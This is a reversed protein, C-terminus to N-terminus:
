YTNLSGPVIACEDITLSPDGAGRMGAGGHGCRDGEHESVNTARTASWNWSRLSHDRDPPWSRLMYRALSCRVDRPLAPLADILIPVADASLSTAYAVDFRVPADAAAM